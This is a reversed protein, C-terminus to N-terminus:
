EAIDACLRSHDDADYTNLGKMPLDSFNYEQLELAYRLLRGVLMRTKRVLSLWPPEVDFFSLKGIEM